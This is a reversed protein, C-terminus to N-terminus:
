SKRSQWLPPPACNFSRDRQATKFAEIVGRVPHDKDPLDVAANALPCGCENRSALVAIDKLWASL